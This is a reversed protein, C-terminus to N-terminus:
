KSIINLNFNDFYFRCIYFYIVAKELPLNTLWKM